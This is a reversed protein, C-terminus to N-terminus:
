SHQLLLKKHFIVQLVLHLVIAVAPSVEEISSAQGTWAITAIGDLGFDITAETLVCNNIAYQVSDFTVFLAFKQLQNVNSGHASVISADKNLGVASKVVKLNTFVFNTIVATASGGDAAAAATMAREINHLRFTVSSAGVATVTAPGTIARNDFSGGTNTLGSIVVRTGVALATQEGASLTVTLTLTQTSATWSAGSPTGSFLSTTTLATNGYFANWLYQEEFTIDATSNAKYPRIYTSFSFDVPSLSTNFSRQGRVPSEGAENTSVTEANSNQSFSFGDLVQIEATNTATFGSAPKFAFTLGTLTGIVTIIATGDLTTLTFGTGSTAASVKYVNGSAYGAISGTGGATGTITVLNGVAVAATVPTYTFVGATTSPAIGSTINTTGQSMPLKGTTSDVNSTFFVRANRILNLAM